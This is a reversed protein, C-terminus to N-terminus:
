HGTANIELAANSAEESSLIVGAIKESVHSLFKRDERNFSAGSNKRGLILFGSMETGRMIPVCIDAAVWRMTRRIKWFTSREGPSAKNGLSTLEEESVIGYQFLRRETELTRALFDKRDISENLRTLALGQFRHAPLPVFCSQGYNWVAVGAHEVNWISRFIDALADSIAVFDKGGACAEDIQSLMAQYDPSQFVFRDIFGIIRQRLQEFILVLSCLALLSPLGRPMFNVALSEASFLVAAFLAVCVSILAAYALGWRALLGFDMVRYRIVAYALILTYVSELLYYFPPFSPIFICAFFNIAASFAITLSLFIYKLQNRKVGDAVRFAKYLRSLGYFLWSLFYLSFLPYLPGPIEQFNPETKVDKVILPTLTLPVFVFIIAILVVPIRPREGEKASVHILLLFFAPVVLLGFVYSLRFSFVVWETPLSTVLLDNLNWGALAANSLVFYRTVLDRKTKFIAFIALFVCCAAAFLGTALRFDTGFINM